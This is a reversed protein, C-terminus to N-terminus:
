QRFSPNKLEIAADSELRVGITMAVTDAPVEVPTRCSQFADGGALTFAQEGKGTEGARNFFTWSVALRTGAASRCDIAFENVGREMGSLREVTFVPGRRGASLVGGESKVGDGLRCGDPIGDGDRDTEFKPMINWAPDPKRGYLREVWDSQTRIEINQERCWKLLEDHRKLYGEWGGPVQGVWMHASGILVYNRAVQDAIKKKVAAVDEKELNFSGWQFAFRCRQPDPENYIRLAPDQYTAASTYGFERGYVEEVERGNIVGERGGPLIWSKLPKLGAERARDRAIEALMRLGGPAVAFAGFRKLVLWEEPPLKGLDVNDEEYFSLLKYSGDQEKRTSFAKGIRPSYVFNERALLQEIEPSKGLRNGDVAFTLKGAAIEPRVTHKFYVTKGAVHDVAPHDRFQDAEAATAFTHNFVRHLPTHDMVECGAAECALLQARFAPDDLEPRAFNISLGFPAQYRGFVEGLERWKQTTQNDDFRFAVGGIKPQLEAAACTGAALLAAMQLLPKM